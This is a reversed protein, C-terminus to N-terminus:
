KSAKKLMEKIMDYDLIKLLTTGGSTGWLEDLQNVIPERDQALRHWKKDKPNLKLMKATIEKFQAVLFMENTLM